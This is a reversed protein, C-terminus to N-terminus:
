VGLAAEYLYDPLSLKGVEVLKRAIGLYESFEEDNLQLSEQLQAKEKYYPANLIKRGDIDRCCPDSALLQEIEAKWQEFDRYFLASYYYSAQVGYYPNKEGALYKEKCEKTYRYRQEQQYQLEYVEEEGNIGLILVLRPYDREIKERSVKFNDELMDKLMLSHGNSFGYYQFSSNGGLCMVLGAPGQDLRYEIDGLSECVVGYNGNKDKITISDFSVEDATKKVMEFTIDTINAPNFYAYKVDFYKGKAILASDDAYFLEIAEKEVASAGDYDFKKGEDLEDHNQNKWVFYALMFVLTIPLLILVKKYDKIKM